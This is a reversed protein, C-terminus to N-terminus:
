EIFIKKLKKIFKNLESISKSKHTALLGRKECWKHIYVNLKKLQEEYDYSNYFQNLKIIISKLEESLSVIQQKIKTEINKENLHLNIDYEDDNSFYKLFWHFAIWNTEENKSLEMHLDTRHGRMVLKIVLSSTKFIAIIGDKNVSQPIDFVFNYEKLFSFKNVIEDKINKM